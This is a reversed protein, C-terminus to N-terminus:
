INIANCVNKRQKIKIRGREEEIIEERIEEHLALKADAIYMPDGESIYFMMHCGDESSIIGIDGVQRGEAFLWKDMAETMEGQRVNEYIMHGDESFERWIEELAAETKGKEELRTMATKCNEYAQDEDFSTYSAFVHGLNRTPTTDRAGEVGALYADLREQTMREKIQESLVSSYKAALVEMLLVKRVDEEAVYGFYAEDLYSEFDLSHKVVADVRMDTLQSEVYAYDDDNLTIGHAVAAECWILVNEVESIVYANIYEFWTQKDDYKQKKLPKDEDFGRAELEENTITSVYLSGIDFFYYAYMGGMVQFNETEMAVYGRLEDGSLGSLNPGSCSVASGALMLVCLM